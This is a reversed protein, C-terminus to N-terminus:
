YTVSKLEVHIICKYGVKESQQNTSLHQRLANIYVLQWRCIYLSKLRSTSLGNSTKNIKPPITKWGQIFVCVDLKRFYVM